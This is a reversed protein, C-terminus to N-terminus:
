DGLRNKNHDDHTIVAPHVRVQLDVPALVARTTRDKTGTV